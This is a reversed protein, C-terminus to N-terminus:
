TQEESDQREQSAKSQQRPKNQVSQRANDPESQSISQWLRSHEEITHHYEENVGRLFDVSPNDQFERIQRQIDQEVQLRKLTDFCDQWQKEPKSVPPESLVIEMLASKLQEDGLFEVFHGVEWSDSGDLYKILSAFLRDLAVEPEAEANFFSSLERIREEGIRSASDPNLALVLIGRKAADAATSAAPKAMSGGGTKAPRDRRGRLSELDRALSEQPIGLHSALLGLHLSRDLARPMGAIFQLLERGVASKAEVSSGPNRERAQKLMFDFPVLAENTVLQKWADAGQQRLFSDPDEGRPLCLVKGQLANQSLTETSRVAASQGARDSDFVLLIQETYRKLRRIHDNTMATGLVAVANEFSFQHLAIVDMYGETVIVQKEKKIAERAQYLGYLIQGKKFLDTEPSNLYKADDDSSLARGGFGVVHGLADTIPFMIRDRFRGYYNKKASQLVLGAKEAEQIPVHWQHLQKCLDDWAAPAYGLRFRVQIEEPIGRRRLYERAQKALSSKNLCEHYYGAVRELLGRHQQDDEPTTGEVYRLTVGARQALYKIAEVPALGEMEQVFTIANGGKRCGFCYFLGKSPSVTFSPTKEDHFPCLGKYRDGAGKLSPVHDSILAVLDTKEIIEDVLGPAFRAM